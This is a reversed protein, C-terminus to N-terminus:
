AYRSGTPPIDALVQRWYNRTELPLKAMGNKKLNGRGWNYAALAMAWDGFEKFLDRLYRAAYDASKRWDSPVASPHWYAMIQFMGQARGYKTEPGVADPNFRSEQYAVRALLLPPLAYSNGIRNIEDVYPKGKGTTISRSFNSVIGWDDLTKNIPEFQVLAYTVAAAAGIIAIQNKTM